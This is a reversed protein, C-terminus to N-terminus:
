RNCLGLYACYTCKKEDMTQSFPVELNYIEELLNKLELEFEEFYIRIDSVDKRNRGERIQILPSFDSRFLDRINFLSAQVPVDPQHKFSNFYLLGYIFTQLVAKNRNGIERDFLSHIDPFVKQDKGTKYDVIRVHGNKQEIRDIIGKLGVKLTSGNVSIESEFFFGKNENAELGLIEFPVRQQDYDLVKLIMKKIIERALVNQGEFVFNPEKSGFQKAFEKKIETNVRSRIEKLELNTIQRNGDQDYPLYLREMVHHLINGFVMANVEEAMEDQDKLGLVYKYYFKLRCDLYTNIATPTLRKQFGSRSTFNILQDMIEKNKEISIVNPDEVIVESAINRHNMEIDTEAELQRVFRSVEGSKGTEESANYIFYINKSRQVLRYFIYAYMADQHDIVPLGFVKRISHPIFSTNKPAPPILGENMSLVIINEFDLNRTELIGMLQLGLLPEGEFPLRENQVLQRFLKQFAALSLKLQHNIIFEQLRNLLQYFQFAFEREVEEDQEDTLYKIIDILYNAVSPEVGKFLLTLLDHDTALMGKPIWLINKKQIDQIIQTTTEDQFRTLLPHKLVALVNRFYFVDKNESKLHLSILADLLGFMSSSDLPYGMTINLRDVNGPLAHLIPFLLTNNPLIVATNEDIKNNLSELIHSAEQAQGVESAVSIVEVKKSSDTFANGYSKRFSKRLIANGYKMERLYKGAEQKNDNLYYDDADWYAEGKGEKVFWSIIEEESKSLANFGAFIVKGKNVTLEGNKLQESVKRYIMGDYAMNRAKLVEQFQRYTEHLNDWIGLFGKQQRSLKEGFSSWFGKILAKQEDELYDLDNELNKIHVLNKFLLGADVLFKDVEDFDQLLVNGWFYFKDFDEKSKNLDTFVQYLIYILELKDASKLGSLDKIFDEISIIRPSWIPTSIKSSLYKSFFLGARRNPFVITLNDTKDQYKDIVLEAIEELFKM